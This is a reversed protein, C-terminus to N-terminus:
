FGYILVYIGELIVLHLPYFLYFFYKMKLKGREGSYLCLLPLALLSYAQTAYISRALFLLGIGLSFIRIYVSDCWAPLQREIRRTDFLSAFLPVLTGRFGYDVSFYRCFIYSFAVASAFVIVSISLWVPSILERSLEKKVLDLAYIMIISLTFTVLICMDLSGMAFFYVAQCVAALAAILGLYKVRSKTYRAGESIMFAFIPLALRGIIRFIRETPFFMLGIHDVTMFIAALIKLMNGSLFRIKMNEGGLFYM